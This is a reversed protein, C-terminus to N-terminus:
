NSVHDTFQYSILFPSHQLFKSAKYEIYQKGSQSLFVHVIHFVVNVIISRSRLVVEQGGEQGMTEREQVRLSVGGQHM